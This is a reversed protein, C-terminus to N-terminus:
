FYRPTEVKKRPLEFVYQLMIEHTANNIAALERNVNIDYAYGLQLNAALQFQILLDLSQLSRYSAGLWLFKNLLVNLNLDVQAPAGGVAKFMFNPKLIVNESLKFVYGGLVYFHRAVEARSAPNNKDLRQKMMVPTSFTAYFNERHIM